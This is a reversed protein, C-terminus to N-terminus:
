RARRARITRFVWYVNWGVLLTVVFAMLRPDVKPQVRVKGGSVEIVAVPTKAWVTGEVGSDPSGQAFRRKIGPGAEERGRSSSLGRSYTCRGVLMLTQDGVAVGEGCVASVQAPQYVEDAQGWHVTSDAGAM